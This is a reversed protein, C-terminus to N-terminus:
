WMNVLSGGLNSDKRKIRDNFGLGWFWGRMGIRGLKYECLELFLRLRKGSM